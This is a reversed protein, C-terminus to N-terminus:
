GRLRSLGPPAYDPRGPHPPTSGGTRLWAPVIEGPQTDPGTELQRLARDIVRRAIDEVPIVVSTLTPHLLETGVSGEFGVVALDRGVRLNLDAAIGYVTIAIKDTGTLVADPRASELFSRIAGRASADDDVRLVGAGDGSIGRSALGDRFGAEREADWYNDSTYGIYGLRAFGLDLVHRVAQAEAEANDVDAWCQPLGPGTRGMCAFPMGVECLLAVRPDGPGLDSLVFADVSRSSIMRRMEDRADEHGGGVVVRYRRRSAEAVLSQLFQMMILNSPQLQEPPMLYGLQMTRRSRLSRAGHHPQYGLGAVAELVRARAAAGVRGSGNLVNSVTQRGVGAARAV